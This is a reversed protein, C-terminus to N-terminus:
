VENRNQIDFRRVLAEKSVGCRFFKKAPLLAGESAQVCRSCGICEGYNLVLFSPHDSKDKEMTLASTPCADVIRQGIDETLLEPRVDPMRGGSADGLLNEVPILVRPSEFSRRVVDGIM